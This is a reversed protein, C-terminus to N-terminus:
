PLRLKQVLEGLTGAESAARDSAPYLIREEKGNHAYLRATLAALPTAHGEDGGGGLRAAIEAMLRRLEVHEVRMVETPGSRVGTLAEFAPFLIEEEAVIHRELGARFEAFRAEARALEGAVLSRKAEALIADLRRHDHSLIETVTEAAPSREPELM